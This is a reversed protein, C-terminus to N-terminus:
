IRDIEHVIDPFEGTSSILGEIPTDFVVAFGNPTSRVVQGKAEIEHEFQFLPFRIIIVQDQAIPRKTSIFLGRAGINKIIDRFVGEKVTYEAIIYTTRRQHDRSSQSNNNERKM